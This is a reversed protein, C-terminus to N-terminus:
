EATFASYLYRNHRSPLFDYLSHPKSNDLKILDWTPSVSKLGAEQRAPRGWLLSREKRLPWHLLIPKQLKRSLLILLVKYILVILWRTVRLKTYFSNISVTQYLKRSWTMALLPAHNLSLCRYVIFSQLPLKYFETFSRSIVLIIQPIIRM